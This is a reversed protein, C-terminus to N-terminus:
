QGAIEAAKINLAPSNVSWIGAAGVTVHYVGEDVLSDPLTFDVAEKAVGTAVETNTWNTTRAYFVNGDKDTLTVVPYNEDSEVDDGYASGASQGNLQQGSLTYVGGGNYKIGEIRPSLRNPADGDSTWVWLQTDTDSFLVQGTPLVLMRTVFAPVLDLDPTPSVVPSITDTDPDFDFVQTPPKFIGATPGADATFLVHGNPMTAAPADDAGFLAPQGNLSGMIDPGASWTNTAPTYLATHGTAGLIFIRGDQLRVLPGLEFGM